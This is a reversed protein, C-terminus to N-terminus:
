RKNDWLLYILIPWLKKSNNRKGNCHESVLENVFSKNLYNCNKILDLIKNAYKGKLWEAQPISFGQKRKYNFGEPLYKKAVQKLIYKRYQGNIKLQDDLGFAFECLKQDLLPVRAELSVAM